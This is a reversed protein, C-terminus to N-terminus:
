PQQTSVRKDRYLGRAVIFVAFVALAVTVVAWFSFGSDSWLVRDPVAGLALLAEGIDREQSLPNASSRFESLARAYPLFSVLFAGSSLFLIAPAYDATWCAVKRWWSKRSNAAARWFELSLLAALGAFGAILILGGFGQVFFGWRRFSQRRLESAASKYPMEAFIDRIQRVRQAAQQAEVSRGAETYLKSLEKNARQELSLGTLKEIDTSGSDQMKRGFSDVEGALREAQKEDGARWSNEAMEIKTDAFTRLNFLNPIGHGWLGMLAVSPALTKNRNWVTCTLQANNQVYSDYRSAHFARAMMAMWKADNALAAKFAKPDSFTHVKALHDAAILDPVANDPDSHRLLGLREEPPTLYGWDNRVASYIWVLRPDLAVAHDALTLFKQPNDSRLAVFALTAADNQKEARRELRDLEFRDFSSEGFSWWSSRVAAIAERSQPLFLVVAAVVLIAATTLRSHKPFITQGQSPVGGPLSGGAPLRMWSWASSIVSRLFFMVGGLSWCLSDWASSTEDFEAALAMGWDRTELPWHRLVCSLVWRAFRITLQPKTAAV